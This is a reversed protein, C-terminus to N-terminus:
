VDQSHWFIGSCVVFYCLFSLINTLKNFFFRKTFIIILTFIHLLGPIVLLIVKKESHVFLFSRNQTFHGTQIYVSAYLKLKAGMLFILKRRTRNKRSESNNQRSEEIKKISLSIYLVIGIWHGRHKFNKYSFSEVKDPRKDQIEALCCGLNYLSPVALQLHRFFAPIKACFGCAETAKSPVYWKEWVHFFM